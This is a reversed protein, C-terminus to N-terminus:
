LVNRDERHLYIEPHDEYSEPWKKQFTIDGLRATFGCHVCFFADASVEKKCEPCRILMALLRKRQFIFFRAAPAVRQFVSAGIAAVCSKRNM